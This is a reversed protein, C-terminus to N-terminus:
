SDAKEKKVEEARYVAIKEILEYPMPQDLPFQVSGKAGQYKSLEEHFAAHGKPTAYFGIHEKWAGFYVLPQGSLKFAPMGYSISEKAEPVAKRIIDRIKLLIPQVNEPCGQIYEDITQPQANDSM